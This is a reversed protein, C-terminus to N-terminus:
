KLKCYVSSPDVDYFYILSTFGELTDEPNQSIAVCEEPIGDIGFLEEMEDEEEEECTSEYGMDVLDKFKGKAIVSGQYYHDECSFAPDGIRVESFPKAKPEDIPTVRDSYVWNGSITNYVFLDVEVSDRYNRFEFIELFGKAREEKNIFYRHTPDKAVLSYAKDPSKAKVWAQNAKSDRVWAQNAKNDGVHNVLYLKKM